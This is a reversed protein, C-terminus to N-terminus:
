EAASFTVFKVKAKACANLVDISRQHPSLDHADITVFMDVGGAIASEQLRALARSLQPMERSTPYDVPAGNLLITGDPLVSIFQESPIQDSQEVSQEPIPLKLKLDAEQKILASTVMFYILMLFVVDIMPTLDFRDEEQLIDPTKAM